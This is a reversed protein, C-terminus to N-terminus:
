LKVKRSVVFYIGVAAVLIIFLIQPQDYYLLKTEVIASAETKKIEKVLDDYAGPTTNKYYKGGTKEIASKFEQENVVEENVIGFVKIGYKVCLDAAEDLEVYPTGNKDNDTTFIVLRTRDPDAELDPFSYICSALGDGILSSGQDSLTGEYKYNYLDYDVNALQEDTVTGDGYYYDVVIASEKFSAELKDIIELCYEYDTTM